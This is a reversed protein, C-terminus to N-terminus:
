KIDGGSCAVDRRDRRPLADLPLANVCDRCCRRPSNLLVEPRLAYHCVTPYQGGREGLIIGARLDTDLVAHELGDSSRIWSFFVARQAVSEDEVTTV